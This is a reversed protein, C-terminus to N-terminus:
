RWSDAYLVFLRNKPCSIKLLSIFVTTMFRKHYSYPYASINDTKQFISPLIAMDKVKDDSENKIIVENLIEM